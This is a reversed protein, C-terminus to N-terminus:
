VFRFQQRDWRGGCKRAESRRKNPATFLTPGGTLLVENLDSTSRAFRDEEGALANLMTMFLDSFRHTDEGFKHHMTLEGNRYTERTTTIQSSGRIRGSM